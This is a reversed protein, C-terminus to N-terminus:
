SVLVRASEARFCSCWFPLPPPSPHLYTVYHVKHIRLPPTDTEDRPPVGNVICGANVICARARAVWAGNGNVLQEFLADLREAKRAVPNGHLPNGHGLYCAAIVHGKKRGRSYGWRMGGERIVEWRSSSSLMLGEAKTAVPNGNVPNGHGLYCSAIVHGKKRGRSYGWRM